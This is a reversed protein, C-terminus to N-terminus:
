NSPNTSTCKCCKECCKLEPPTAQQPKKAEVYPCICDCTDKCVVYVCPKVKVPRLTQPPETTFFVSDSIALTNLKPFDSACPIHLADSVVTDVSADSM